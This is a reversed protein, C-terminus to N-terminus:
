NGRLAPFTDHNRDGWSPSKRWSQAQGKWQPPLKSPQTRCVANPCIPWMQTESVTMLQTSKLATLVAGSPKRPNLAYGKPLFAAKSLGGGSLERFDKLPLECGQHGRYSAECRPAPLCGTASSEPNHESGPANGMSNSALVNTNGDRAAVIGRAWWLESQSPFKLVIHIEPDLLLGPPQLPTNAGSNLLVAQHSLHTKRIHDLGWGRCAPQGQSSQPWPTMGQCKQKWDTM